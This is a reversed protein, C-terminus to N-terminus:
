TGKYFGLRKIGVELPTPTRQEDQFDIDQEDDLNWPCQEQLSKKRQNVHKAVAQITAENGTQFAVHLPTWNQYYNNVSMIDAKKECLFDIMEESGGFGERHVAAHLVDYMKQGDRMLHSELSAGFELLVNVVAIHGRSAALHIPQGATIGQASVQSKYHFTEFVDAGQSLQRFVEHEDGNLIELHFQSGYCVQNNWMFTVQTLLCHHGTLRLMPSTDGACTEKVSCPRSRLPARLLTPSPLSEDHSPDPAPCPTFIAQLRQALAMKAVRSTLSSFDLTSSGAVASKAFREAIPYITRYRTTDEHCVRAGLFRLFLEM